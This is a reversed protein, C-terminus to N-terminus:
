EERKIGSAIFIGTETYEGKSSYGKCKLGTSKVEIDSFGAERMWDMIQSHSFGLWVDFMEERAWEGNHEEVDTIVVTGGNKLARYMENIAKKADPVHHLAMNTYIADISNDFLPLDEMSGKIPYINNMERARATNHLERLMNKASDISFVIKAELSLAQSIFGTGCGLDACIKDKIDFKSLAIYKLKEEFYESRIVNWKPAISDFYSVSNM